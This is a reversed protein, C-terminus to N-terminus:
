IGPVPAYASLKLDRSSERTQLQAEAYGLDEYTLEGSQDVDFRDFEDLLLEIDDEQVLGHQVLMYTVFEFRSLTGSGDSDIKHFLKRSMGNEKLQAFSSAIIARSVEFLFNADAAVGFVMWISGFIRGWRSSPTQDGFGVATLTVTSLYIADIVTRHGDCDTPWWEEGPKCVDGTCVCTDVFGYFTIGALLFCAYIVLANLVAIWKSSEPPRKRVEAPNANRLQDKLKKNGAEIVSQVQSSIALSALISGATAYVAMFLKMEQSHPLVDGYGVTTMIQALVYFSNVISTAEHEEDEDVWRWQFVVVGIVMWAGFCCAIRFKLRTFPLTEDDSESDSDAVVIYVEPEEGGKSTAESALSEVLSAQSQSRGMQEGNDVFFSRM